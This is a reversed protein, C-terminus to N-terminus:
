YKLWFTRERLDIIFYMTDRPLDEFMILKCTISDVSLVVNYNVWICVTYLPRKLVFIIADDHSMLPGYWLRLDIVVQIFSRFIELRESFKIRGEARSIDLPWYVCGFSALIYAHVGWPTWAFGKYFLHQRKIIGTALCNETHEKWYWRLRRM